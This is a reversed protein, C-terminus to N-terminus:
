APGRRLPRRSRAPRSRARDCAREDARRRRRRERCAEADPRGVGVGREGAQLHVPRHQAPAEQDVGGVVRGLPAISPQERADVAAHEVAQAALDLRDAGGVQRRKRNPQCCTRGPLWSCPWGPSARTIASSCPKSAAAPAHSRPSGGRGGSRSRSGGPEVREAERAADGPSPQGRSGRAARRAARRRDREDAAGIQGPQERRVSPGGPSSSPRDAAARSTARRGARAPALKWSSIMAPVRRSRASISSASPSSTDAPRTVPSPKEPKRASIEAVCVRPPRAPASARASSGACRRPRPRRQGSTAAAIAPEATPVAARVARLLTEGVLRAVLRQGALVDFAVADHEAIQERALRLRGGHRSMTRM